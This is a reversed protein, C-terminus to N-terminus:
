ALACLSLVLREVLAPAPVRSGGKLDHDAQYIMRHAQFLQDSTFGRAQSGYQNAIFPPLGLAAGLNGHAEKAKMLLRFHRALMANVRIPASRGSATLEVELLQLAKAADRGGVADCLAFISASGEGAAAESVDAVTIEEADGVYLALKELEAALMHLTEGCRAILMQAARPPLKKGYQAAIRNLVPPLDRERLPEFVAAVGASAAVKAFKTRADVKDGALVLVTGPSPDELYPLLGTLDKQGWREIGQVVVLRKGGTPSPTQARGAVSRGDIEDARLRDESWEDPAVQRHIERIVEGLLYTEKGTLLYVPALDGGRGLKRLLDM